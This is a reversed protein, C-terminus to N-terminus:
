TTRNAKMEVKQEYMKEDARTLANNFDAAKHPTFFEYGYAATFKHEAEPQNEVAVEFNHLLTMIAERYMNYCLCVFEDGGIRYVSGKDGVVGMLCECFAKIVKDGALHGFNDNLKKLNNMDFLILCYEGQPSTEDFNEIFTYWSTKNFAGTAIDLFALNKYTDAKNMTEFRQLSKQYAILIPSFFAIGLGFSMVSSFFTGHLLSFFTFVFILMACTMSFLFLYKLRSHKMWDQKPLIVAVYACCCAYLFHSIFITNTLPQIGTIQLFFQTAVVGITAWYIFTMFKDTRNDNISRLFLFLFIPMLLQTLYKLCWHLPLYGIFFQLIRSDDLQWLGICLTLLSLHLLLHDNKNTRTFLHNTGFLFVAAVIFMIGFLFNHMRSLMITQMINASGGMFMESYVGAYDPILAYTEISIYSYPSLDIPLNVLHYASHYSILWKPKTRTSYQYIVRNNLRVIVDQHNTYFCLFTKGDEVPAIDHYIRSGYKETPIRAPLKDITVREGYKDHYYWGKDFSASETQMLTSPSTNRGAILVYAGVLLFLACVFFLIRNKLQATDRM